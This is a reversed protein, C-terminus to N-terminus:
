QGKPSRTTVKRSTDWQGMHGNARLTALVADEPAASADAHSEALVVLGGDPTLDAVVDLGAEM